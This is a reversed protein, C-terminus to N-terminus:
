TSVKPEAFITESKTMVMALSPPETMLETAVEAPELEMAMMGKRLLVPLHIAALLKWPYV